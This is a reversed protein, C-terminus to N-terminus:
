AQALLGELAAPETVPLQCTFHRCVFATPAGGLAQRDALLPIQSHAPDPSWAVVQFPRYGSLLPGTLADLAAGAPGVLAVERAPALEFTLANLWQAFGTPYRTVYPAVGTLAGIAAEEFRVDGTYAALKLL